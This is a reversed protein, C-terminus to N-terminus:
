RLGRGVIWSNITVPGISSELDLSPYYGLGNPTHSSILFFANTEDALPNLPAWVSGRWIITSDEDLRYHPQWQNQRNRFYRVVISCLLQKNVGEGTYLKVKAEGRPRKHSPYVTGPLIRWTSRASLPTKPKVISLLARVRHAAEDESAEAHSIILLTPQGYGPENYDEATVVTTSLFLCFIIPTLILCRYMM